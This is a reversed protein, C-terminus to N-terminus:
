DWGDKEEFGKVECDVTRRQWLQCLLYHLVIFKLSSFVYVLNQAKLSQLQAAHLLQETVQPIPTWVRCLDLVVKRGM